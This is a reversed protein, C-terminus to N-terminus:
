LFFILHQAILDPEANSLLDRAAAMSRFNVSEEEQCFLVGIRSYPMSMNRYLFIISTMARVGVM